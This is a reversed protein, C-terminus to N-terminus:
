RQRLRHSDTVLASRSRSSALPDLHEIRDAIEVAGDSRALARAIVQAGETLAVNELADTIARRLTRVSARKRARVGAGSHIVRAANGPQDRGDPICVLPVGDAL